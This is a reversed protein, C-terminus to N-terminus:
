FRPLINKGTGEVGDGGKERGRGGILGAGAEPLECRKLGQKGWVQMVPMPFVIESEQRLM